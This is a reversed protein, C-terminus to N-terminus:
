KRSAVSAEPAENQDRQADSEAGPSIVREISDTESSEPEDDGLRLRVSRETDIQFKARQEYDTRAEEGSLSELRANLAGLRQALASKFQDVSEAQYRSLEDIRKQREAMMEVMREKRAVTDIKRDLDALQSQFERYEGELKSLLSETQQLDKRLHALERDCEALRSEYSTKTQAIRNAQAYAQDLDMVRDNFAVKVVGAGESSRAEQARALLDKLQNLDARALEVVRQSIAKDREIQEIQEHLESRMSRAEAIRKPYKAKLDRLQARMAVPDDINRDIVREPGAILVAATTGLGGVVAFRILPKMIGGM